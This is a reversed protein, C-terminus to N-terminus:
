FARHEGEYGFITEEFGLAARFAPLAEQLRGLAMLLSGKLLWTEAYCRNLVLAKDVFHMAKEMDGTLHCYHAM